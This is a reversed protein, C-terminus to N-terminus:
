VTRRRTPAIISKGDGIGIVTLGAARAVAPPVARRLDVLLPRRMRRTWRAPWKLYEPWDAHLIAADAGQLAEEVTRVCRLRDAGPWGGRSWDRLFNGQAIPDHARVWAGAAVLERALRIARSERVDDTGAKFALGLLALRRGPLRGVAERIRRLSYQLQDENIELATEATRFRQGLERSRVVLAHLDKEFCSGGFGPGARLFAGGIRPDHGVAAMVDDVNVGLRDAIRSTENAFSVKSALIANAAYKVLEAASPTLDFIPAQFPAYIRHLWVRARRDETGLVIRNPHLADRLLNGEALFEPNVAVPLEHSPRGSAKRVIPTVVGETTGPVVTSKVVVIRPERVARAALAVARASSRLARLDIGGDRRSPTPVCLFVTDSRLVIEDITTAVRLRGTRVHRALLPAMGPERLPCTGRAVMARVEPQIDYGYVIDGHSAFALGTALGVYGLGVIGVHGRPDQAHTM